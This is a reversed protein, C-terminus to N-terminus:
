VPVHLLRCVHLRVGGLEFRAAGSLWSSAPIALFGIASTYTLKETEIHTVMWGYLSYQTSIRRCISELRAAYDYDKGLSALASYAKDQQNIFDVFLGDFAHIQIAVVAEHKAIETAKDGSDQYINLFEIWLSLGDQTRKFPISTRNATRAFSM